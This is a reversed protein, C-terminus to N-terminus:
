CAPRRQNEKLWGHDVLWNQVADVGGVVHSIVSGVCLKKFELQEPSLRGGAAKVEVWLPTLRMPYQRKAHGPLVAYLDPIGPTQMTGQYDGKRRKTGIVYVKAGLSELLQVIAAQEAKEPVRPLRMARPDRLRFAM